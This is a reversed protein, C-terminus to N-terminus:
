KAGMAWQLISYRTSVIQTLAQYTLANEALNASEEDPSVGNGDPGIQQNQITPSFSVDQMPTGENLANQLTAQFDVDQRQYGPTEANALNSTLLNQRLESGRM